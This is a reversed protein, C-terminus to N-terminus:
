QGDVSYALLVHGPMFGLSAYGSSVFLMVIGSSPPTSVFRAKARGNKM